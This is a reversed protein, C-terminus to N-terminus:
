VSTEEVAQVGNYGGGQKSSLLVTDGLGHVVELVVLLVFKISAFCWLQFKCCPCINQGGKGRKKVRM